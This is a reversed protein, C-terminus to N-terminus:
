ITEPRKIFSVFWLGMLLALLTLLPFTLRIWMSPSTGGADQPHLVLPTNPIAWAVYLALATYLLGRIRVAPIMSNVLLVIVTVATVTLSTRTRPEALAIGGWSARQAFISFLGGVIFLAFSVWAATQTWSQLTENDTAAILLGLVGCAYIGLMGARTFAAHVYVLRITEGLTKELPAMFLVAAFIVLLLGLALWSLYRNKRFIMIQITGEVGVM